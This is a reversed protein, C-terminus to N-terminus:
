VHIYPGVRYKNTWYPVYEHRLIRYRTVGKWAFDDPMRVLIHADAMKDLELVRNSRSFTM